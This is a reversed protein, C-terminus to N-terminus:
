GSTRPRCAALGVSRVIELSALVADRPDRFHFCVGDGLMKVVEGDHRVAVEKM